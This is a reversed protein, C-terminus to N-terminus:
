VSEDSLKWTGARMRLVSALVDLVTRKFDGRPELARPASQLGLPTGEWGQARGVM